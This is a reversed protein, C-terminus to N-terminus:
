APDDRRASGSPRRFGLEYATWAASALFLGDFAVVWWISIAEPTQPQFGALSAAFLALLPVMGALGPPRHVARMRKMTLMTYSVAVIIVVFAFLVLYAYAVITMPAIFPQTAIDHFAYRRLFSWVIWLAVVLLALWTTHFRWTAADIEGDESRFLFFARGKDSSSADM